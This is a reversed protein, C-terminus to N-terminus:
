VLGGNGPLGNMAGPVPALQMPARPITRTEDGSSSLEGGQPAESAPCGMAAWGVLTASWLSRHLLWTAYYEAYSFHITKPADTWVYHGRM